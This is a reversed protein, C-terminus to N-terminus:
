ANVSEDETQCNAFIEQFEKSNHTKALLQLAFFTITTQVFAGYLEDGLKAKVEKMTANKEELTKLTEAYLGAVVQVKLRKGCKSTKEAVKGGDIVKM